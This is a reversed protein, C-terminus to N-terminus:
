SRSSKVGVVPTVSIRKEVPPEPLPVFWAWLSLLAVVIAVSGVYSRAPKRMAWILMPIAIFPALLSTALGVGFANNDSALLPIGLLPISSGAAITLWVGRPRDDLALGVGLALM